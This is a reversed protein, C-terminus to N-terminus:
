HKTIVFSNLEKYTSDRFVLTAASGDIKVDAFAYDTNSYWVSVPSIYERELKEVSAFAGCIAYTVGNKQLLELQHAHGSFVMDVGYKEFLPTLKNITEPNDYWKWGNDYSGSAYYYGHGMVITWEDKPISALQTELWTNEKSTYTEASWELDIVLFHVKGVDIRQYLQTGSELPMGKPYCYAEYYKLGGLLSDHNGLAYKTPIISSIFSMAQFAEQWQSNDFGHEVLDGLSFLLSFGNDPEAIYQLMKASLTSQSAESGFHADSFVAFHLPKNDSPPTTFHYKTGNNIQYWYVTDPQLNNLVFVHQKGSKEENLVKSSSNTGWNIVNSTPLKTDFAIAMDPVGNQGTGEALLLQPSRDADYSSPIIGVYTSAVIPIIIGLLAFIQVFVTLIKTSHTPRKVHLWKEFFALILLILGFVAVGSFVMRYFGNVRFLGITGHQIYAWGLFGFVLVVAFIASWFHLNKKM